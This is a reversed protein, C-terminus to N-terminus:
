SNNHMILLHIMEVFKLRGGLLEQNKQLTYKLLIQKQKSDERIIELGYEEM